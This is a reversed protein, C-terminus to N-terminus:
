TEARQGLCKRARKTLVARDYLGPFFRDAFDISRERWGVVRARRKGKLLELIMGAVRHADAGKEPLDPNLGYWSANRRFATKLMGPYVCSFQIAKDCYEFQLCELFRAIAAKSAAYYAEFPVAHRAVISLVALFHGPRNRASWHQGAAIAAERCAWFNVEFVQRARETPILATRGFVADGAAFILGEVPAETEEEIKRYLRAWDTATLQTPYFRVVRLDSPPTRGVVVVKVKQDCLRKVLAGGLGGGGGVIAIQKM